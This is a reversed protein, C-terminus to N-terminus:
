CRHEAEADAAAVTIRSAAATMVQVVGPGSVSVACIKQKLHVCFICELKQLVYCSHVQYVEFRQNHFTCFTLSQQSAFNTVM